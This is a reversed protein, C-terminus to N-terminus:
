FLLAIENSFKLMGYDLHKNTVVKLTLMKDLFRSYSTSFGSASGIHGICKNGQFLTLGLGYRLKITGVLLTANTFM